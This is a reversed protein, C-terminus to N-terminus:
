STRRLFVRSLRKRVGDDALLLGWFVFWLVSDLAVMRVDRWTVREGRNHAHVGGIVLLGATVIFGVGYVAGIM